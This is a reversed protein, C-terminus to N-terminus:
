LKNSFIDRLTEIAKEVTLDVEDIEHLEETFSPM